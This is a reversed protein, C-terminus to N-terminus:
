IRQQRYYEMNKDVIQSWFEIKYIPNDLLEFNDSLKFNFEKSFYMPLNFGYYIIDTQVVSFVPNNSTNSSPIYRHSYIPILIPYNDFNKEVIKIQETLDSPKEGWSKEWFNHEVDFLIGELIRERIKFKIKESLKKDTLATRWDIFSDSIPLETQLLLKLDPPLTIGFKEEILVVERDTLGEAFLIGKNKLHHIIEKAQGKRM